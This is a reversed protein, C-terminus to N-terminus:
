HAAFGRLWVLAEEESDFIASPFAPHHHGYYLDALRKVYEAPAVTAEALTCDKVQQPFDTINVRVESSTTASLVVMVPLPGDQAMKVRQEIVENVGAMDLDMGSHFRICLVGEPLLELSALRTVVKKALVM